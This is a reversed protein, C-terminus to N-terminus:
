VSGPAPQESLGAKVQKIGAHHHQQHLYAGEASWVVHMGVDIMAALLREAAAPQSEPGIQKRAAASRPPYLAASLIHIPWSTHVRHFAGTTGTEHRFSLNFDLM